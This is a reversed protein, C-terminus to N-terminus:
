VRPIRFYDRFPLLLETTVEKNEKAMTPCVHTPSRLMVKGDSTIKCPLGHEMSELADDVQEQLSKFQTEPLERLWNNLTAQRKYASEEHDDALYLSHMLKKFRIEAKHREAATSNDHLALLALRMNELEEMAFGDLPSIVIKRGNFSLDRSAMGEIEKYGDALDRMDFEHTHMAKCHPCKYDLSIFTDETTHIWYWFLALRRDQATWRVCDSFAAKDQITNLFKTTLAEEHEPLVDCFDLAEATTAERLLVQQIPKSPLSFPAFM